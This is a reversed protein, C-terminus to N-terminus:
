LDPLGLALNAEELGGDVEVIRNRGRRILEDFQALAEDPVGDGITEAGEVVLAKSGVGEGEVVTFLVARGGSEGLEALRSVLKM